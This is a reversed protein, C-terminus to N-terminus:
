RGNDRKYARFKMHLAAGVADVELSVDDMQGVAKRLSEGLTAFASTLSVPQNDHLAIVRDEAHQM